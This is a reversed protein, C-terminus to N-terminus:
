RFTVTVFAVSHAGGRKKAVFGVRVRTRLPRGRHRGRRSLPVKLTTANARRNLHRYVNALNAGGGSIRGAEFTRVTLYATNGIVKHGVIRVGCGNVAIKTNQKIKAGSWATLSLSISVVLNSSCRSCIKEAPVM